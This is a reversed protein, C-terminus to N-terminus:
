VNSPCLNEPKLYAMIRKLKRYVRDYINKPCMLWEFQSLIRQDHNLDSVLKPCFNYYKQRSILPLDTKNHEGGATVSYGINKSLQYRPEISMLGNKVVHYLCQVDWTKLRGEAQADIMNIFHRGTRNLKSIIDPNERDTKWDRLDFDVQNWRDEWTGWGWCMNVPDLYVDHPYDKPIKLNPSQYANISWISKDNKYFDLAIDMYDLFTRSILIDDEIIIAKGYRTIITSIADVINGRCGYNRERRIITLKPLQKQYSEVIEFIEDQKVKDGDNRPGDVFMFIDHNASNNALAVNNMSLRVFDPRNYSIMVIPALDTETNHSKRIM